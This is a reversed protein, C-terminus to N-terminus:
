LLSFIVLGPCDSCAGRIGMEGETTCMVHDCSVAVSEGEGGIYVRRIRKRRM